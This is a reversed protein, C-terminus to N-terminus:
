ATRIFGQENIQDSFLMRTEREEEEEREALFESLQEEFALSEREEQVAQLKEKPM